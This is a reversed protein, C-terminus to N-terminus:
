VKCTLKIKFFIMKLLLYGKLLILKNLEEPKSPLRTRIAPQSRHDDEGGGAGTAEALQQQNRGCVSPESHTSIHQSFKM